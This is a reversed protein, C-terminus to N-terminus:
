RGGYWKEGRETQSQDGSRAHPIGGSKHIEPCQPCYGREGDKWAVAAWRETVHNGNLCEPSM